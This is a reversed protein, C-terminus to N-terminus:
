KTIKVKEKERFVIKTGASLQEVEKEFMNVESEGMPNQVMVFQLWERRM